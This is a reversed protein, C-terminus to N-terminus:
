GALPFELYNESACQLYNMKWLKKVRNIRQRALKVYDEEREIGIFNRGLRKAVAGTTGTGFFPDLVIQNLKTAAILIRHM